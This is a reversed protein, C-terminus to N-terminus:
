ATAKAATASLRNLGHEGTDEHMWDVLMGGTNPYDPACIMNRERCRIVRFDKVKFRKRSHLDILTDEVNAADEEFPWLDNLVKQRICFSPVKLANSKSFTYTSVTANTDKDTTISVDVGEFILFMPEIYDYDMAFTWEWTGSLAGYAVTDYSKSGASFLKQTSRSHTTSLFSGAPPAIWCDGKDKGARFEKERCFVFSGRIGTM